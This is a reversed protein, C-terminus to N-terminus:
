SRPLSPPAAHAAAGFLFQLFLRLIGNPCKVKNINEAVISAEFILLAYGM